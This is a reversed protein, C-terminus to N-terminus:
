LDFKHVLAVVIVLVVTVFVFVNGVVDAATNTGFLKLLLAGGGFLLLVFTPNHDSWKM